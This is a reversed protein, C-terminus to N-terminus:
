RTAPAQAPTAGTVPIGGQETWWDQLTRLSMEIVRAKFEESDNVRPMPAAPIRVELFECLPAWGESVDWVLLREAPVTRKVEDHHRAAAAILGDREAHGGALTGRDEWLLGKILTLYGQWAPNVLGGACSMHRILSDGHIIGWVTERMSREWAAPDRVSLVVKAEPYVEVLERYFFGGPWDVTSEYGAFIREWDAHGDLAEQWLGVLELDALVNVMHYCPGVGLMDLAIKQSLTGTRPLGAGIVKM